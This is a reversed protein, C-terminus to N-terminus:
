FFFPVLFFLFLFFNNKWLFTNTHTDLAPLGGFFSRLFFILCLLFSL